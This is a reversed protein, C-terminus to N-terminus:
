WNNTQEFAKAERPSLLVWFQNESRTIIAGHVISNIPMVSYSKPVGPTRLVVQPLGSVSDFPQRGVADYWQVVVFYDDNSDKLFVVCKKVVPLTKVVVPLTKIFNISKGFFHGFVHHVNVTNSTETVRVM